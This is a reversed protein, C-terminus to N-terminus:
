LSSTEKIPLYLKIMTFHNEESEIEIHYDAGFQLRLRQDVNKLGVGGLKLLTSDTNEHNIFGRGNDYITILMKDDAQTVSIRILGTGSMEKIGHYIANEVLPQLVLKPLQYNDFQHDEVIEYQLKDGYRQKQIFLYQRVHDIEDKLRIQEHGQNLALRFYKALSKTVEVVRKSDNFEAMWVITDLTNYLFHPNIQSSLAQLEYRRVNQEEEKVTEMLLNIQDLMTNFQRALSILEPSGKEEARLSSNGAGVKLIIQQLNQLPKIWLHLIFWIGLLCIILALLGTMIFSYLIQHQVMEVKELSAVGILTWDSNPIKNQYVFAQKNETYGDKIDLYPQMAKMEKSSSYVSKKPHYVFEHNNGVIFAFGEGGLELRDLYAKLSDYGLDLRIVGLNQGNEDIVEQTISIVWKEKESSLSERRVPTLVPMAKQKLAEKYWSENMMDSSTQMKLSSNTSVVRGDKTVFVASVLDSDTKIITELLEQISSESSTSLNQAYGKIANNETLTSTTQKLKQIYSDIFQSSQDITNRTNQQTLERIANSSTQYYLGGVIGLLALIFIFVYVILQILLSYRRM